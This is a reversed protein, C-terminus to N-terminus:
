CPCFHLYFVNELILDILHLCQLVVPNWRSKAFPKPLWIRKPKQYSCFKGLLKGSTFGCSYLLTLHVQVLVPHKWLESHSRRLVWSDGGILVLMPPPQCPPTLCLFAMRCWMCKDWMRQVPWERATPGWAPLGWREASREGKESVHGLIM